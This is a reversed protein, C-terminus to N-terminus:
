DNCDLTTMNFVSNRLEVNGGKVVTSHNPNITESVTRDSSWKKHAVRYLLFCVPCHVPTYGDWPSGPFMVVVESFIIRAVRSFSGPTKIAELRITKGGMIPDLVSFTVSCRSLKLGIYKVFHVVITCPPCTIPVTPTLTVTTPPDTENIRIIGDVM